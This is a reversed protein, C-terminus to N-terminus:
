QIRQFKLLNKAQRNSPKRQNRKIDFLQLSKAQNRKREFIQIQTEKLNNM